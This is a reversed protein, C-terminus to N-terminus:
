YLSIHYYDEMESFYYYFFDLYIKKNDGNWWGDKRGSVEAEEARQM